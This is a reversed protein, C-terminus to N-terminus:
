GIRGAFAQRFKTYALVGSAISVALAGVGMSADLFNIRRAAEIAEEAVDEVNRAADRAEAAVAEVVPEAADKAARGTSKVAAKAQHGAQAAQEKAKDADNM